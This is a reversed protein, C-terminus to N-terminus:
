PDWFSPKEHGTDNSTHGSGQIYDGNKDHDWSIHEQRDRDYVVEHTVGGGKDSTSSGGDSLLDSPEKPDPGSM